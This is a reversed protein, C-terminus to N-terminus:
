WMMVGRRRAKLQPIAMSLFKQAFGLQHLADGAVTKHELEACRRKLTETERELEAVRTMARRKAADADILKTRLAAADTDLPLKYSEHPFLGQSKGVSVEVPQVLMFAARSKKSPALAGGLPEPQPILDEEGEVHVQELDSNNSLTGLLALSRRVSVAYSLTLLAIPVM